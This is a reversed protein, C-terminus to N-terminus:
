AFLVYSMLGSISLYSSTIFTKAGQHADTSGKLEAPSNSLISTSLMPASFPSSQTPVNNIGVVPFLPQSVPVPPMSTPLGPPTIHSPLHAPTSSPPPPRVNQVPFLPQPVYGLSSPPPISVSPLQPFWPQPRPQWANPPM